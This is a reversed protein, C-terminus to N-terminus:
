RIREWTLTGTVRGQANRISLMLRDGDTSGEVHHTVKRQAPDITYAGYYATYTAYAAAREPKTSPTSMPTRNSRMLQASMQGAADYMIRGGDYPALQALGKEDFNEFTVLRWHGVFQRQVDASTQASAAVFLGCFSLAAFTLTKAM